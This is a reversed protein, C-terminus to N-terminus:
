SNCIPHNICKLITNENWIADSLNAGSLDANSLDAGSLFANRLDAGSLDTNSLDAGSLFANRLDAGSLDANTLNASYFNQFMLGANKFNANELNAHAFNNFYIFTVALDNGRIETSIIRVNTFDGFLKKVLEDDSLFKLHAENKLDKFYGTKPSLDVGEFNSNSLNANMFTIGDTIVGAITFDQGSLDAKWFNTADLIVGALDVGSLNSHAFSAGFLNAGALSKNKIKTFDVQVFAAGTLNTNEMNANSFTAYHFNSYSLDEGSLDVGNFKTWEFNKGSLVGGPLIVDTLNASTLITNAIDHGSLDQGTLNTFSLDMDSLDANTLIAESLDTNGFNIELLSGLSIDFGKFKVGQFNADDVKADKLNTGILNAGSLNASTFDTNKVNAGELNVDGLNAGVLKTGTLDSGSLNAGALNAFSLDTGALKTDTLDVGVLVLGRLDKGAFDVFSLNARVFRAEKLIADDFNAYGLDANDFIANSLDMTGFNKGSLDAGAAFITFQGSNYAYKAPEMEYVVNIKELVAPLAYVFMNEAVIKHGVSSPHGWDLYVSEQSYDFIGRFDVAKTCVKNLEPLYEPYNSLKRELDKMDFTKNTLFVLEHDTMVRDGSGIIPQITIITDFGKENGLECVATWNQISENLSPSPRNWNIPYGADNWGDYMIILDPDFNVIRDEILKRETGSNAASIGANIIEVDVGLDIGDFKKQLYGSWTENDSVGVGFTSSGGLTFIRYTNEPKQKSFEESRFGHSNIIAESDCHDCTKPKDKLYSLDFKDFPCNCFERADEWSSNNILWDPYDSVKVTTETLSKETQTVVIIGSKILYQIGSVFTSDNIQDDAWWGANNKVWSPVEQSPVSESAETPPIVMIGEKILYQIGQLFASDTIQDSAWWGATNKVWDPVNEAFANPIMFIGVLSVLLVSLLLHRM